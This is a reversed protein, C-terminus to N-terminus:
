NSILTLGPSPYGRLFLLGNLAGCMLGKKEQHPRWSELILRSTPERGAEVM